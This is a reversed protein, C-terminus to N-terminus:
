KIEFVENIQKNSITYVSDCVNKVLERDHSVLLVAGEYEKLFTELALVSKLDLHNTPEDLILLDPNTYLFLALQLRSKQGGSLTWVKSRMTQKNFFFKKLIAEIEYDSLPYQKAFISLPTEELPLTASHEQSYYGVRLNPGIKAEGSVPTLKSLLLNILTSKGTGNPSLLATKDQVFLHLNANSFLPQSDYGFFLDKVLIATKRKIIKNELKTQITIQAKKAEPNEVMESKLRTLRNQTNHYAGIFGKDRFMLAMAELRKAEKAQTKYLDAKAFEEEQYVQKFKAYGFPYTKIQHNELLWVKTSTNELFKRDHSILIILGSYSKMAEELWIKNDLDLHNDPEDLLVVDYQNSYLLEALKAIKKQGGSLTEYDTIEQTLYGITHEGDWIIEGSDQQELLAILKLLTSKGSGNDGILAIVGKGSHSLNIGELLPQNYHKVLAKIKLHYM